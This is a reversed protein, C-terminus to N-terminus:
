GAAELVDLTAAGYERSQAPAVEGGLGDVIVYLGYCIGLMPIGRELVAPDLRPSGDDYISSPGGSLIIGKPELAEIRELARDCPVIEAFVGLERVRRAILQTVQSGFDVVVLSEHTGANRMTQRDVASGVGGSLEPSGQHHHRRARPEGAPGGALDSSFAGQDPARRHEARGRLGDRG